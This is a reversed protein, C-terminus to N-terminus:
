PRLCLARNCMVNKQFPRSGIQSMQGPVAVRSYLQRQLRLSPAAKSKEDTLLWFDLGFTSKGLRLFLSKCTTDFSDGNLLGKLVQCM